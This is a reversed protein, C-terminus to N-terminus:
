GWRLKNLLEKVKEERKKTEEMNLFYEGDKEVICDGEKCEKPLLECTINIISKDDCECVAINEEFRDIIYKKVKYRM